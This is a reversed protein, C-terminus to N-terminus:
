WKGKIIEEAVQLELAQKSIIRELRAIKSEMEKMRKVESGQLGAFKERWRYFTKTSVGHKRCIDETRGGANSEALIKTIQEESFRGKRMKEEKEAM